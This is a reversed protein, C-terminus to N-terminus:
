PCYKKLDSIQDALADLNIEFPRHPPPYEPTQIPKAVHIAYQMELSSFLSCHSQVWDNESEIDLVVTGPACFITNFLGAGSPGIVMQAEAFTKIQEAPHLQEPYIVEVGLALMREELSQHHMCWRKNRTSKGPQRSIFIRRFPQINKPRISKLLSRAMVGLYLGETMESPWILEQAQYCHTAPQLKIIQDSEWGAQKLMFQQNPHACYSIIREVGMSKLLIAKPLIRTLFSGWNSPEAAAALGVRGTLKTVSSKPIYTFSSAVADYRLSTNRDSKLLLHQQNYSKKLVRDGFFGVSENVLWRHGDLTWSEDAQIVFFKSQRSHTPVTFNGWRAYPDCVSVPPYKAFKEVSQYLCSISDIDQRPDLILPVYM